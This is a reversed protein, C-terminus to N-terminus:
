IYKPNDGWRNTGYESDTVFWVLLLISGVIPVLGILLWVGSRGVDHLRRAALALSPIFVALCWIINVVPIWCFILNWLVMYWYETRRARGSFDTYHQFFYSLTEGFDMAPKVSGQGPYSVVTVNQPHAQMPMERAHSQGMIESVNLAIERALYITEFGKLNYQANHM